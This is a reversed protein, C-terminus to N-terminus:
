YVIQSANIQDSNLVVEKPGGSLVDFLVADTQQVYPGVYFVTVVHCTFLCLIYWGLFSLDLVFTDWKQGMMMEKSQAIADKYSISPDQGMVYEIMRYEYAKIIGPVILLMTWLFLFLQKLFLTKVINLYSNGKRFSFLVEGVKADEHVNVRFFRKCGLLFPNLVFISLAIGICMAIIMIIIVVIALGAFLGIIGADAGDLDVMNTTKLDTNRTGLDELEYTQYSMDESDDDFNWDRQENGNNYNGTGSPIRGGSGGGGNMMSSAVLIFFSVLVCRWYNRYFAEKARTKIEVRTWMIKRQGKRM